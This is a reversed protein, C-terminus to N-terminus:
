TRRDPRSNSVAYRNRTRAVVRAPSPSGDLSSAVVRGSIVAAPPVTCQFPIRYSLISQLPHERGKEHGKWKDKATRRWDEEEEGILNHPQVGIPTEKEENSQGEEGGGGRERM